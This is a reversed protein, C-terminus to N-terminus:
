SNRKVVHYNKKGSRLVCFGDYRQMCDELKEAGKLRINNLYFGGSQLLRKAEGRSPLLKTDVALDLLSKELFYSGEFQSSPVEAFIEELEDRSLDGFEGGFLVEASRKAKQLAAEGHVISVVYDALRHQGLRKEPCTKAEALIAVIQEAELLSLRRLLLDVEEDAVNLLFQHLRFPSTMSADLWVASGASKGFKRGQSDTILPFSLGFAEGGISKRILEIGATINGWQDSGGIQLRCNKTKYLHLFDMAQLLMYSFETYSIGDGDLRTKVVEKAIMYNVTLHKGIDRLFDLVSMPATWDFNNVVSIDKLELRAFIAKAQQVQREVNADIVERSLLQRETNRGSPDGIAGTAGGFLLIPSYGAKTLQALAMVGAFNGLQLSPATPDVGWYFPSEAPLKQLAEWHSVDQICGRQKLTDFISTDM